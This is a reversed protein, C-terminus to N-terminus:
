RPIIEDLDGDPAILVDFSNYNVTTREYRVGGLITLKKLQQRAMAYAAYVNETATFAEVAEDIAKDEAQLEFQAPNNNFYQVFQGMDAFPSLTYAGGLFNNDLLGGEFNSLGPAGGLDEYKSQNIDFRKEKFRAKAGFKISGGNVGTKYPITVNFKATVNQDRAMTSGTEFEEFDYNGNELYGPATITPFDTNSFGITSPIGGLFVVEQDYPTRQEGYSYQAEYDVQVKPYNHKAGINISSVSQAEFRDKTLKEIEDDEPIFVYRRRWERDTFRTYLGRVYLENRSNIRYDITSSLGTRTRTLEYDRLEFENDLPEREWNDSGLDNHYYSTNLLIGLKDNELFRQGYSLSGQINPRQMLNNYGGLVSGQIKPTASEATRTILNVSGGIADGDMDPTLSKTVEMSALQDSPIADLAVFRVDAEPSPIQEGNININTFQPALGRVFVYRGEGQDREINVGSVRQLAEAANPDPFRGIQDAAVVNKINDAARQQNLAKAQGQLNGTINVSSLQAYTSFMGLNLVKTEGPALTVREVLDEYGIFKITLLHTGAPLSFSFHGELNATTGSSTSDLLILAGALPEGNIRDTLSGKLTATQAVVQISWAVGLLLLLAKKM